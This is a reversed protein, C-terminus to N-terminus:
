LGIILGLLVPYSTPNHVPMNLALYLAATEFVRGALPDLAARLLTWHPGRLDLFFLIKFMKLAM